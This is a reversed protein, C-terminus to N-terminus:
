AGADAAEEQEVAQGAAEPDGGMEAAGIQAFAKKIKAKQDEDNRVDAPVDMLDGIRKPAEEMNVEYALLKEGGITMLIEMFRVLNEVEGMAEGKALASKMRVEILFQDIKLGQSRLIQKGELIDVVRQVAPIIFEAYLRGLGGAQDAILERARQVFETASRIPGAEPPLSNDGIVKKINDHLTELLLEGYDIRQPSDLRQLSPGDPGGNKRVQIISYPKISVPGKTGNETATYVGAVAVAAARLTLEVIKNATRIDPLAFLMPGRGRNEGPLKSYRPTVFPPTRSQRQVIRHLDKGKGWFVEYRYPKANPGKEDYDRYVVATLKVKPPSPKDALEQLEEPIKADPWESIVVDARRELWAFWRDLRNNPGEYAYFHSFPMSAFIVPEGIADENPMISMGGQGYHWDIYMENSSTPFGPGNFIAQCVTTVAELEAKAEEKTQGVAEKFAEDPMAKAGPGLGIEFWDQFQPTFDSSLRNAARIVSVTPQSDWNLANNEQGESRRTFNERDPFTLEMAERYVSDSAEKDSKAKAIARRAKETNWRAL